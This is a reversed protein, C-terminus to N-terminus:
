AIDVGDIMTGDRNMRTVNDGDEDTYVAVYRIIFRNSAM